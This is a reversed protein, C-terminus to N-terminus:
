HKEGERDSIETESGELPRLEVDAIQLRDLTLLADNKRPDPTLLAVAVESHEQM